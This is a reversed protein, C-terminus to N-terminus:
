GPVAQEMVAIFRDFAEPGDVLAKVEHYAYSHSPNANILAWAAEESEVDLIAISGEGDAFQYMCEIVGQAMYDAFYARSQRALSVPDPIEVGERPRVTALYKM